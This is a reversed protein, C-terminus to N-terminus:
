RRRVRNSDNLICVFWRECKRRVPRDMGNNSLTRLPRQSIHLPVIHTCNGLYLLIICFTLPVFNFCVELNKHSSVISHEAIGFSTCDKAVQSMQHHKIVNSSMHTHAHLSSSQPSLSSNDVVAASSTHFITHLVLEIRLVERSSLTPSQYFQYFCHPNRHLDTVFDNRLGKPSFEM